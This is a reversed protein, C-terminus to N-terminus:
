NCKKCICNKDHNWHDDMTRGMNEGGKQNDIIKIEFGSKGDRM